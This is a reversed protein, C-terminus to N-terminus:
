RNLREPEKKIFELKSYSEVEWGHSLIACEVHVFGEGGEFNKAM